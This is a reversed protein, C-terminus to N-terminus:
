DLTLTVGGAMSDKEIQYRGTKLSWFLSGTCTYQCSEIFANLSREVEAEGSFKERLHAAAKDFRQVSMKLGEVIVSVAYDLQGFQQYLIPVLSDM